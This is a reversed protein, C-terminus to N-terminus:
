IERSFHCEGDEKYGLRRYLAQAAENDQGTFLGWEHAHYRGSVFKEAFLIMKGAIGKRRYDPSVYVETIEPMYEDYCFSKKLQVCVFGALMGDEEDVVVIEQKNHLLSNEIFAHDVGKGNFANNLAELQPADKGTALRVMYANREFKIINGFCGASMVM